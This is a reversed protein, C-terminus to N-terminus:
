TSISVVATPKITPGTAMTSIETLMFLDAKATLETREGNEQTNPVMQGRRNELDTVSAEKGNVLISLVPKSSTPHGKNM